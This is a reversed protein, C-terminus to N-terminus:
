GPKFAPVDDAASFLAFDPHGSRAALNRALAEWEAKVFGEASTAIVGSSEVLFSTPVSRLGYAQGVPWPASEVLVPLGLGHAAAFERADEAADQAVLVVSGELGGPLELLRQLYPVALACTPCGRKYFVLWVPGLALFDALAVERGALDPLRFAPADIGAPLPPM